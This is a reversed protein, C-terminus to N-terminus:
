EPFLRRQKIQSAQRHEKIVRYIWEESSGVVIALEKHNNGTFYKVVYERKKESVIGDIPRIYIRISGMKEALKIAVDMGCHIAVLQLDGPLDEPKLDKIWEM